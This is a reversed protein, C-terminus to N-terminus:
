TYTQKRTPDSFLVKLATTAISGMFIEANYAEKLYDLEDVFGKGWDDIIGVLDSNLNFLKKVTPGAQRLVHM